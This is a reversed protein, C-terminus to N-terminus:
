TGNKELSQMEELMIWNEHESSAIAKSYIAPEMKNEVQEALM